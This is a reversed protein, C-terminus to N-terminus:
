LQWATVRDNLVERREDRTPHLRPRKASRFARKNRASNKAKAERKEAGFTEFISFQKHLNSFNGRNGLLFRFLSHISRIEM